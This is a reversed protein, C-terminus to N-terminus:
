ADAEGAEQRMRGLMIEQCLLTMEFAEERTFEQQQLKLFYDGLLVAMNGLLGGMQEFQHVLDEPDPM